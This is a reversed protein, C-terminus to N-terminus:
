IEIESIEFEGTNIRIKYVGTQYKRNDEGYNYRHEIFIFEDSKIHGDIKPCIIKQTELNICGEDTFAIVGGFCSPYSSLSKAEYVIEGKLNIICHIGGENEPYMILGCYNGRKFGIFLGGCRFPFDQAEKGKYVLYGYDNGDKHEVFVLKLDKTLHKVGVQGIAKM